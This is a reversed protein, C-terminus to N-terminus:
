APAPDLRGAHREERYWDFTLRLGEDLATQPVWGLQDRTRDVDAVRVQELKRDALAGLEPEIARPGLACLRRAVEGTTTLVGTGLDVYGGDVPGGHVMRLLGDVVDQVFIWDVPRTGSMLKPTEGGAAALCVYPVLKRVDLQGPGYVMFIRAVASELGYLAHFMRAYGSAAWKSAAYPSAPVPDAEDAAPEELSGALVCKGAGTRSAAVLLNVTSVLNGSLTERVWELERRGTVCSALHLVYRPRVADFLRDTEAADSLDVARHHYAPHELAAPGRSVGHVTAGDAILRACVARGIFGSAGTVLYADSAAATAM